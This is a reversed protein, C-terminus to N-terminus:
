IFIWGKLDLRVTAKVEEEGSRLGIIGVMYMLYLNFPQWYQWQM